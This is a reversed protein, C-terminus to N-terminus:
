RSKACGAPDAETCPDALMSIRVSALRRRVAEVAEEDTRNVILALTSETYDRVLIDFARQEDPSLSARVRLVHAMACVEQRPDHASVITSAANRLFRMRRAVAERLGRRSDRLKAAAIIDALPAVKTASTLIEPDNSTKM